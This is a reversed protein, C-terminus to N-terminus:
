GNFPNSMPWQGSRTSTFYGINAMFEWAKKVKPNTTFCQKKPQGDDKYGIRLNRSDEKWTTCLYGKGCQTKDSSKINERPTKREEFREGCDSTTRMDDYMDWTFLKYLKECNTNPTKPGRNKWYLSFMARLLVAVYDQDLDGYELRGDSGYEGKKKKELLYDYISNLSDVVVLQDRTLKAAGNPNGDWDQIKLAYKVIQDCVNKTAERFNKGTVTVM